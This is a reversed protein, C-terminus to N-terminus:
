NLLLLYYATPFVRKLSKFTLYRRNDRHTEPQYIRIVVIEKQTYLLPPHFNLVVEM